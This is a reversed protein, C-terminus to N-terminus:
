SQRDGNMRRMKFRALAFITTLVGIALIVSYFPFPISSGTPQVVNKAYIDINTSNRQDQWTIIAGRAGNSCLQPKVQDGGATCIAVGNATWQVAGAASIRQTYIDAYSGSRYDAWTIIAGAASDNCIQLNDQDASATCIAVGNATWQAVGSVNMRQAYIDWDYTGRQDQWTIIAGGSGDSCLHPNEQDQSVTCIGVGNATWEVTGLSSIRQAYIDNNSGSRHDQWTIIAGGWLPWM